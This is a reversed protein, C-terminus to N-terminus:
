HALPDPVYKIKVDKYKSRQWLVKGQVPYQITLENLGTWKAEVLLHQSKGNNGVGFVNGSDRRSLSQGAGLISIRPAMEEYTTTAGCDVVFVVAKWKGDPSATESLVENGCGNMFVLAAFGLASGIIVVAVVIGWMAVKSHRRVGQEV